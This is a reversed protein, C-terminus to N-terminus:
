KQDKDPLSSELLVSMPRVRLQDYIRWIYAGITGLTVLILGSTILLVVMIPAWGDFPTAQNFWASVIVIAYTLGLLASLLGIRSMFKIPGYSSDIVLDVFYSLRRRFSYGSKGHLRKARSYPIFSTPFGLWLLDGQIFRFRGQFKLIQTLVRKSMLFYDFGGKPIGKVVRRAYAYAVRSTLAAFHGDNRELRNAIVVDDGSLWRDVMDGILVTPDQLDASISVVADGQALGFGSIMASLQGFNRTLRHASVHRRDKSRLESIVNWSNDDSGDDVFVIELELQPFRSSAVSIIEKYLQSLSEANRFVAVVVSVMLPSKKRGVAPEVKSLTM